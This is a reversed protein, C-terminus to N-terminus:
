SVFLPHREVLRAALSEAVHRGYDTLTVYDAGAWRSMLLEILSSATQDRGFYGVYLAPEGARESALMELLM